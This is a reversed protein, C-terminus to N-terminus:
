TFMAAGYAFAAFPYAGPYNVTTLLFPPPTITQAALFLRGLRFETKGARCFAYGQELWNGNTDRFVSTAAANVEVFLGCRNQMEWRANARLRKIFDTDPVSSLDFHLFGSTAVDAVTPLSVLPLCTLVAVLLLKKMHLDRRLVPQLTM